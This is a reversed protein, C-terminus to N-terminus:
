IGMSRAKRGARMIGDFLNRRVDDDDKKNRPLENNGGGGAGGISAGPDLSFVAALPNLNEVIDMVAAVADAWRVTNVNSNFSEKAAELLQDAMDQCEDKTSATSLLRWVAEARDMTFTPRRDSIRYTDRIANLADNYTPLFKYLGDIKKQQQAENAAHQQLQGEYDKIKDFVSKGNATEYNKLQQHSAQYKKFWTGVDTTTTGEPWKRKAVTRIEEIADKVGERRANELQEKRRHALNELWGILSAMDQKDTNSGPIADLNRVANELRDINAQMESMAMNRGQRKGVNTADAIKQPYGDAFTKLVAALQSLGDVSRGDPIANLRQATQLLSREVSRGEIASEFRKWIGSNEKKFQKADEVQSLLDAYDTKLRTFDNQKQLLDSSIKTLSASKKNCYNPLYLRLINVSTMLGDRRLIM